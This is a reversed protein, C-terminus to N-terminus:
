AGALPAMCANWADLEAEARTQSQAYVSDIVAHTTPSALREFERYVTEKPAGRAKAGAAASAILGHQFCYGALEARQEPVGAVNTACEGFFAVAYDWPSGVHDAYVKEVLPVTIKANAQAAYSARTEEVGAGRAKRGAIGLAVDGLGACYTLQTKERVSYVPKPAPAACAAAALALAVASALRM